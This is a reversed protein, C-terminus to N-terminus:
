HVVLLVGASDLFNISTYRGWWQGGGWKEGVLVIIDLFSELFISFWCLHRKLSLVHTIGCQLSCATGCSLCFCVFFCHGASRPFSLLHSGIELEGEVGKARELDLGSEVSQFCGAQM